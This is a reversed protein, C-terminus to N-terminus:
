ILASQHSPNVIERYKSVIKKFDESAEKKLHPNRLLASPHYVPMVLRDELSIWEGRAETIKLDNGLLSKLAISGLLVIIKPNVLEIQQLVYPKCKTIEAIRPTRNGPPRCKVISSIFVHDSRNFGCSSLMDDLLQGSRGVFPRGQIDENRGPAEGILFVPANINGEGFVVNTRTAALRCRTCVLVENRLKEINM